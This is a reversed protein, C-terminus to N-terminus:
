WLAFIGFEELLRRLEIAFEDTALAPRRHILRTWEALGDRRAADILILMCRHAVEDNTTAVFVSEIAHNVNPDADLLAHVDQGLGGRDWEEHETVAILQEVEAASWRLEARVADCVSEPLWNDATWFIDGHGVTLTLVRIAPALATRDHMYRLSARVLLLPRADHRALGFADLIAARQRVSESSALDILAPPGGARLYARAQALFGPLRRADLGFTADVPAAAPRADSALARAWATLNAWHLKGADHVVGFVPISSSRWLELDSATCPIAYGRARRFSEGGKIQLAIVDGTVEGHEVIDVYADKGIDNSGLVPQYLHNADELLGQVARIAAQETPRNPRVRKRAGTM